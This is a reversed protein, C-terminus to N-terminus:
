VDLKFPIHIASAPVGGQVGWNDLPVEQLVIVIDKPNHYGLAQLRTNIEAYLKKKADLTRGPFISMEILTFMSTKDSPLEYDDVDYEILRQNRDDVPIRFAEVLSAHVADSVAKIEQRTKGKRMSIRVLPM